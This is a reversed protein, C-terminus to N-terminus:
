YVPLGPATFPSILHFDFPGCAGTKMCTGPTVDKRRVRQMTGHSAAVSLGMVAPVDLATVSPLSMDSMPEARLVTDPNCGNSKAAKATFFLREEPTLVCMEKNFDYLDEVALTTRAMNRSNPVLMSRLLMDSMPTIMVNDKTYRMQYLSGFQSAYPNITSQSFCYYREWGTNRTGKLYQSGTKDTGMVPVPGACPNTPPRIIAVFEETTYGAQDTGATVELGRKRMNLGLQKIIIAKETEYDETDLQLLAQALSGHKTRLVGDASVIPDGMGNSGGRLASANPFACPVTVSSPGLTNRTTGVDSTIELVVGNDGQEHTAVQGPSVNMEHAGPVTFIAQESYIDELRLFDVSFGPHVGATVTASLSTPTTKMYMMIMAAARLVPPWNMRACIMHINAQAVYPTKWDSEKTRTKGRTCVHVLAKARLTEENQLHCLRDMTWEGRSFVKELASFFIPGAEKLQDTDKNTDTSMADMLLQNCKAINKEDMGLGLLQCGRLHIVNQSLVPMELYSTRRELHFIKKTSDEQSPKTLVTYFPHLEVETLAQQILRTDLSTANDEGRSQYYQQFLTQYNDATTLMNLAKRKMFAVESSDRSSLMKLNQNLVAEMDKAQHLAPDLLASKVESPGFCLEQTSVAPTYSYVPKMTLISQADIDSNADGGSTVKQVWKTLCTNKMEFDGVTTRFFNRRVGTLTPSRGAVDTHQQVADPIQQRTSDLMYARGNMAFFTCHTAVQFKAMIKDKETSSRTSVYSEDDDDDAGDKGNDQRDKGALLQRGVDSLTIVSEPVTGTGDGKSVAQLLTDLAKDTSRHKGKREHMIVVQKNPDSPSFADKSKYFVPKLDVYLGTSLTKNIERTRMMYQYAQHSLLIVGGLPLVEGTSLNLVRAKSSLKTVKQVANEGVNILDPLFTVPSKCLYFANDCLHTCYSTAVNQLLTADREWSWPNNREAISTAYRDYVSALSFPIGNLQTSTVAEDTIGKEQSSKLCATPASFAQSVEEVIADSIQDMHEKYRMKDTARQTNFGLPDFADVRSRLEKLKQVVHGPIPLCSARTHMMFDREIVFTSSTLAYVNKQKVPSPRTTTVIIQDFLRKTMLMHTYSINFASGLPTYPLAGQDGIFVSMVDNCVNKPGLIFDYDGTPSTATAMHQVVSETIANQMMQTAVNGSAPFHLFSM